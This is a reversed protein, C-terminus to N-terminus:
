AVVEQRLQTASDGYHSDAMTNNFHLRHTELDEELLELARQPCHERVANLLKDANANCAQYGKNIWRSVTNRHVGFLEALINFATERRNVPLGNRRAASKKELIEFSLQEYLANVLKM